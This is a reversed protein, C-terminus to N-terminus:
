FFIDYILSWYPYPSKMPMIPQLMKIKRKPRNNKTNPPSIPAKIPNPNIARPATVSMTPPNNLPILPM